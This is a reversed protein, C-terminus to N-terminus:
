LLKTHTMVSGTWRPAQWCPSGLSKPGNVLPGTQRSSPPVRKTVRRSSAPCASFDFAEVPKQPDFAARRIRTKLKHQGRRGVEDEILQSLFEVYSLNSEIAMRNRMELSALIGSLRLSKLMPTLQHLHDM